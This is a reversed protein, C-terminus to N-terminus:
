RPPTPAPSRVPTDLNAFTRIFLVLQWRQEDSLRKKFAPMPRRGNTIRYFLEGDSKGEMRSADGLSAPHPYYTQADPGDGKGTDGHCNACKDLYVARASALAAPSSQVPNKVQKAAEPVPWDQSEYISYAVATVIIALLSVFVMKRQRLTIM